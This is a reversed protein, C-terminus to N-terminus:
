RVRNAALLRTLFSRSSVRARTGALLRLQGGDGNELDLARKM